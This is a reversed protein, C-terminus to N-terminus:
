AAKERALTAAAGADPPSLARGAIARAMGDAVVRGDNISDVSVNYQSCGASFVLVCFLIVLVLRKMTAGMRGLIM